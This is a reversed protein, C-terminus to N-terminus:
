NSFGEINDFIILLSTAPGCPVKELKGEFPTLNSNRGSHYNIVRHYEPANAYVVFTMDTKRDTPATRRDTRGYTHGGTDDRCGSSPNVHFTTNSVEM